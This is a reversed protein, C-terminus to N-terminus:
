VMWSHSKAKQRVKSAAASSLEIKLAHPQAIREADAGVCGAQMARLGIGAARHLVRAMHHM